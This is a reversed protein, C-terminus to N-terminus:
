FNWIGLHGKAKVPEIPEIDELVWAYRGESYFGCARETDSVRALFEPTMPVCDVLKARAIIEGQHLDRGAALAMLGADKKYEAPVKCASAHIFIEGRYNTRWSRTEIRKVGDRILSAYPEKISLAKM